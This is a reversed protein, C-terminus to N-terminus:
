NNARQSEAVPLLVVSLALQVAVQEQLVEEEKAKIMEAKKELNLVLQKQKLVKKLMQLITMTKILKDRKCVKQL